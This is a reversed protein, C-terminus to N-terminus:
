KELVRIEVRRNLNAEEENREIEVIPKSRGFGKYAVRERAIGKSLLYEYIYRARNVSLHNNQDDVDFADPFDMVCCIHGEVQIKLRPFKKMANALKEMEPLSEDKVTHSQPYFYINKLVFTEGANIKSIDIEGGKYPTKAPTQAPNLVDKVQDPMNPKTGPRMSVYINGSDNVKYSTAPKKPPNEAPTRYLPINRFDEDIPGKRQGPKVVVEMDNPDKPRTNKVPPTTKRIAGRPRDVVVVDVRRDEAHGGAGVGKREVRGKGMCVTIADEQVDNELLYYAVNRAREKSLVVNYDEAGLFDTYGIIIISKRSDIINNRLFVKMKQKSANSLSDVDLDFYLRTTDGAAAYCATSFILLIYTLLLKLM